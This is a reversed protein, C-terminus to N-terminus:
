LSRCNDISYSNKELAVLRVIFGAFILAFHCMISPMGGQAAPLFTVIISSPAVFALTGWFIYRLMRRHYPNVSSRMGWASVGIMGLLGLQYYICYLLYQPMLNQYKAFVVSCVSISVFQSDIVIWLVIISAACIMGWAFRIVAKSRPTLLKAILLLGLPPLWTIDVFALKSIIVSGGGSGCALVEMIQYGALLFLLASSIRIISKRGTGALAWIGAVIELMATLISLYPSYM